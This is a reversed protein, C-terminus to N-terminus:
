GARTEAVLAQRNERDADIVKQPMIGDNKAPQHTGFFKKNATVQKLRNKRQDDTEPNLWMHEPAERRFVGHASFFNKGQLYVVGEIGGVEAFHASKDFVPTPAAEPKDPQLKLTAM